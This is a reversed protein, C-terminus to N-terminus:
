FIWMKDLADAILKGLEFVASQPMGREPELVTFDIETVKKHQKKVTPRYSLILIDAKSKRKIRFLEINGDIPYRM